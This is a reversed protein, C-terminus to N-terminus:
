ELFLDRVGDEWSYGLLPPELNEFFLQGKDLHQGIPTLVSSFVDHAFLSVPRLRAGVESDPCRYQELKLQM